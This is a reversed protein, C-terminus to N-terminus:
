SEEICISYPGCEEIMPHGTEPHMLVIHMIPGSTNIHACHHELMGCFNAAVAIIRNETHNERTSFAVSVGATHFTHFTALCLTRSVAHREELAFLNWHWRINSYTSTKSAVNMQIRLLEESIWWHNTEDMQKCSAIFKSWSSSDRNRWIARARRRSRRRCSLVTSKGYAKGEAVM